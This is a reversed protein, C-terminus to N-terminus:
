RRSRNICANREGRCTKAWCIRIESWGFPALFELRNEVAVIVDDREVRKGCTHTVRAVHSVNQGPGWFADTLPITIPAPLWRFTFRFTLPIKSNKLKNAGLLDSNSRLDTIKLCIETIPAQSQHRHFYGWTSEISPLVIKTWTITQHRWTDLWFRLWINIWVEDSTFIMASDGWEHCFDNNIAVSAKYGACICFLRGIAHYHKGYGDSLKKQLPCDQM